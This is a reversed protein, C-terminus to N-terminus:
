QQSFIERMPTVYHAGGNDALWCVAPGHPVFVLAGIDLLYGEAYGCVRQLDGVEVAAALDRLAWCLGADRHMAYRLRKGGVVVRKSAM